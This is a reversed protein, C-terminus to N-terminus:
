AAVRNRGARKAKYLKTDAARFLDVTTMGARLMAVGTSISVTMGPCVQDFDTAALVARIREAVAIASDLDANLFITFEDGAYRIPTDVGARCQGAIIVGLERLVQDGASHSYTDNIAKFKDVDIILLSLPLSVAGAQVSAGMQDFQRRNGLGTLADILLAANAHAHETELEERQRAQHLMALRQRRQRWIVHAQNHVAAILPGCADRGLAEANTTALEHGVLLLDDPTGHLSVLYQAALIERHAAPHDGGARLAVSLALHAIWVGPRAYAGAQAAAILPQALALARDAEGLKALALARVGTLVQVDATAAVDGFTALWREAIADARRLRQGAEFTHGLHDLWLGWSVLLQTYAHEIYGEVDSAHGAYYEDYFAAATEYLGAAVAADGYSALAGIYHRNRLSTGELLLGSRALYRMGETLRGTLLCLEALDALTKAEGLVNGAARRRMLLRKGVALAPEYQQLELHTYMRRQIMHEVTTGDGFAAAVWEYVEIKDLAEHLRGANVLERIRLLFGVFPGHVPVPVLDAAPAGDVV